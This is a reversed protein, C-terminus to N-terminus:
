AKISASISRLARSVGSPLAARVSMRCYWTTAPFTGDEATVSHKVALVTLPFGIANVTPSPTMTFLALTVKASTLVLLPTIWTISLTSVGVDVGFSMGRVACHVSM